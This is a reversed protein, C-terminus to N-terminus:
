SIKFRTVGPVNYAQHDSRVTSPTQELSLKHVSSMAHDLHATITTTTTATTRSDAPSLLSWCLKAKGVPLLPSSPPLEALSAGCGLLNRLSGSEQM